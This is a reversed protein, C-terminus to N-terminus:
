CSKISAKIKKQWDLAIRQTNLDGMDKAIDIWSLAKSLDTEAGLGNGYMIGMYLAAQGALVGGMNYEKMFESM